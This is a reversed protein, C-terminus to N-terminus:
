IIIGLKNPWMYLILLSVHILTYGPGGVKLVYRDSGLLLQGILRIRIIKFLIEQIFLFSIKFNLMKETLSGSHFKNFQRLHCNQLSLNKNRFLLYCEFIITLCVLGVPLM